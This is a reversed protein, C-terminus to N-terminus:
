KAAMRSGRRVAPDSAGRSKAQRAQRSPPVSNQTGGRRRPCRSSASGGELLAGFSQDDAGGRKRSKELGALAERTVPDDEEATGCDFM